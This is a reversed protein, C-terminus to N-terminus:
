RPQYCIAGLAEGIVVDTSMPVQPAYSSVFQAFQFDEHRNAAGTRQEGARLEV